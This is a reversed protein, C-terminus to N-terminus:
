PSPSAPWDAVKQGTSFPVSQTLVKPSVPAMAVM